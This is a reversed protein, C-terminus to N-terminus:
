NLMFRNENNGLCVVSGPPLQTPINNVLRSGERTLTGNSSYDTVYYNQTAPNYLIGCHKRSVKDAGQDLVIHCATADRGIIMEENSVLNFSNGSYMGSLCTISGTFGAPQGPAQQPANPTAQYAPTPPQQGASAAQYGPAMPPPPAAPRMPAGATASAMGYRDGFSFLNTYGILVDVIMVVYGSVGALICLILSSHIGFAKFYHFMFYVYYAICCLWYLIVVVLAFTGNIYNFLWSLLLSCVFITVPDIFFVKWWHESIIKLRYLSRAVPVFPMWDKDLGAKKGVLMLTFSYFVYLCIVTVVAVPIALTGIARLLTLMIKAFQSVGGLVGGLDGLGGSGFMDLVDLFDM